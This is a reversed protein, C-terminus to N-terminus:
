QDGADRRAILPQIADKFERRVPEGHLWVYDLEPADGAVIKLTVFVPGPTSLVEPLEAAFRNLGDFEFVEAYGAARALGAFDIRNQGPIPHSGNAEYCGNEAVFHVINKPAAEAMTVLGGLNMLLSGDGDLVIVKHDPLGIALGLAHSSAQGMAGVSFYNLSSPSIKRWEFASSYTSVVIADGRLEAMKRFCEDRRMM